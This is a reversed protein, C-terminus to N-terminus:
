SNERWSPIFLITSQAKLRPIAVLKPSPFSQILGRSTQKFIPRIDCRAQPPPTPYICVVTTVVVVIVICSILSKCWLVCQKGRSFNNMEGRSFNNVKGRYFNNMKGRYFNNWVFYFIGKNMLNLMSGWMHGPLLLVVLEFMCETAIHPYLIYGQLGALPSSHYPSTALSPWPYGYQCCSMIIIIEIIDRLMKPLSM